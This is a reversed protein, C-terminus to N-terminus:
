AMLLQIQPVWAPLRIPHVFGPVPWASAVCLPTAACLNSGQHRHPYERASVDVWVLQQLFAAEPGPARHSAVACTVLAVLRTPSINHLRDLGRAKYQKEPIYESRLVVDQDPNYHQQVAAVADGLLPPGESGGDEDWQACQM